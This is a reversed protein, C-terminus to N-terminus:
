LYVCDFGNSVKPIFIFGLIVFSGGALGLSFITAYVITLDRLALDNVLLVFVIVTTVYIVRQVEKADNLGKIDVKRIRLTLILGIVQVVVKYAYLALNSYALSDSDCQIVFNDM